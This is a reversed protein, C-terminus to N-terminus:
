RKRSKWKEELKNFVWMDFQTMDEISEITICNDHLMVIPNGDIMIKFPGNRKFDFSGAANQMCYLLMEAFDNTTKNPFKDQECVLGTAKLTAIKGDSGYCFDISKPSTSSTKIKLNADFM